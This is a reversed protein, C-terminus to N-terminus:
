TVSNYMRPKTYKITVTQVIWSFLQWYYVSESESFFYEKMLM